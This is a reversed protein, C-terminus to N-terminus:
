KKKWERLVKEGSRGVVYGGLGLQLLTWMEEVIKTDSGAFTQGLFDLVVISLFTLMTIPRWNAALWHDSEAEAKIVAIRQELRDTEYALVKQLVNVQVELTKRQEKIREEDSTHIDDILDAAPKFIGMVLDVLPLNM